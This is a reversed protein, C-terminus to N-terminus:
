EEPHVTESHVVTQLWMLADPLWTQWFGWVHDGEEERYAVRAGRTVLLDRMSRNLALLNQTGHSTKLATEKTGVMMYAQLFDFSAQAAAKHQMHEYYAGSFLLLKNVVDPARMALLLSAVGGLSVGAMFRQRVDVPYRTEVFPLCEELVFSQYAGSRAGDSAYDDTRRPLNVAIGVILLPSIKGEAVLQNAITAIRGHTFFENGDHCYVVPYRRLPDFNPPLCVKITREEQLHTSYYTHAEM